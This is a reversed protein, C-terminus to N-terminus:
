YDDEILEESWCGQWLAYGAYKNHLLDMAEKNDACIGDWIDHWVLNYMVDEPIEHEFADANIITLKDCAYHKAVLKIVDESIEVVTVHEVDPKNLIAKLVLGLGLGNILIRGHARQVFDLNEYAEAPTDSMVVGRGKCTLHTYTGPPIIRHPFGDRISRLNMLSVDNDDVEFKAVSWDGSQGDPLDIKTFADPYPNTNYTDPNEPDVTHLMNM